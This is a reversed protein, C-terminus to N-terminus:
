IDSEVESNIAVNWIPHRPFGTMIKNPDLPIAQPKKEEIYQQLSRLIQEKHEKNESEIIELLYGLRQVWACISSQKILELLKEDDVVDILETLVTAIHNLGGSQQYYNLLDMVTTEPTSIELYGTPVTLKQTASKHLLNNKIFKIHVKGCRIAEHQKATIVQFVQPQQHAAGHYAAASLLGVYYDEKWYTMILPILHDPPLCGLVQYEPPIILYFSRFPSVIDGKQSLRHLASHVASRTVGLAAQASDTTFWRKGSARLEKIYDEIHKM